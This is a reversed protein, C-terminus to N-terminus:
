LNIDENKACVMISLLLYLMGFPRGTKNNDVGTSLSNNQNSPDSGNNGLVVGILSSTQVPTTGSTSGGTSLGESDNNLRYM